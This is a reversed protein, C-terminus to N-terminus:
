YTATSVEKSKGGGSTITTRTSKVKIPLGAQQHVKNDIPVGNLYVRPIINGLIIKGQGSIPSAYVRYGTSGQSASDKEIYEQNLHIVLDSLYTTTFVSEIGTLSANADDSLVGSKEAGLYLLEEGSAIGTYSAEEDSEYDIGDGLMLNTPNSNKAYMHVRTYLDDDELYNLKTQLTLTYDETTKQHLYSSWIKDDGLTRIIYNPALYDRVKKIAEFRNATERKRFIMKNLEIGTAQLTNFSYDNSCYVAAGISIAADLLIRGFRKDFYRFTGGPITFDGSVLDS